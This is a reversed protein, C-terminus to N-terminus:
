GRWYQRIRTGQNEGYCFRDYYGESPSREITVAGTVSCVTRVHFRGTKTTRTDPGPGQRWKSGHARSTKRKRVTM